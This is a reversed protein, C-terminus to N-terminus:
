AALPEVSQSQQSQNKADQGYTHKEYFKEALDKVSSFVFPFDLQYSKQWLDIARLYLFEAETPRKSAAFIGALNYFAAATECASRGRLHEHMSLVLASFGAWYDNVDVATSNM